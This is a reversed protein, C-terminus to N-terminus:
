VIAQNRAKPFKKQRAVWGAMKEYHGRAPNVSSVLERDWEAETLEDLGDVIARAVAHSAVVQDGLVGDAGVMTLRTGCRGVPQIVVNASNGHDALFSKVAALTGKPIDSSEIKETGASDTETAM